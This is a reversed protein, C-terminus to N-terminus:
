CGPFVYSPFYLQQLMVIVKTEAVQVQLYVVILAKLITEQKINM